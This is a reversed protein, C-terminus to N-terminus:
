QKELRMSKQSAGDKQTLLVYTLTNNTIQWTGNLLSIPEAVAGFDAWTTKSGVDGNWDGTFEVMGNQIADVTMDRHYQFRYPAFEPQRSLGDEAFQTIIWQGDVM